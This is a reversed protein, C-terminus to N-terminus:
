QCVEILAAKWNLLKEASLPDVLDAILFEDAETLGFEPYKLDVGRM